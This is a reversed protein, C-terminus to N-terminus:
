LLLLNEPSPTTITFLHGQNGSYMRYGSPNYTAINGIGGTGGSGGYGDSNPPVPPFCLSCVGGDGGAATAQGSGSISAGLLRLVGGGGGGGGCVISCSTNPNSAGDGGAGGRASVVGNNVIGAKGVLTLVGGGGGGGGTGYSSSTGTFSAGKAGTATISGTVTLTGQALLTFSGGGSGARSGGPQLGAGGGASRLPLTVATGAAIGEGPTVISASGAPTLAIGPAPFLNNYNNAGTALTTQQSFTGVEIQGSITANGTCRLITGSPVTLTAGAAVTITTFQHNYGGPLASLDTSATINLAGASGDGYLGVAGAPGAPGTPGAVASQWTATGAADSTLVKGIGAGGTVKLTGSELGATRTTGAVDLRVGTAPATGIGVNGTSGVTVGNSGGGTLQHGNLNLNQTATHNGLNDGARVKDPIFLWGGGFCYWLGRRGNKQFVMLGDPPNPIAVRQASDLRPILLGKDAAQVDLVAAPDPSTTGIGVGQGHASIAAVVLFGALFPYLLRHV